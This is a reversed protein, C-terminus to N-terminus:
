ILLDSSFEAIEMKDESLFIELPMHFITVYSIQEKFLTFLM